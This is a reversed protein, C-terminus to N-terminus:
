YNCWGRIIPNLKSILIAQSKGKYRNIIEAVKKYHQKQAKKSPTIITKFGLLEGKRNKGCTYKGKRYQKVNFGLFNFGPEEKKHHNLTHSIRTKSPKLELGMDYLWPIIVETCRNLINIDEHLILFDDAYRIISVSREKDRRSQQNGRCDKMDFDKALNKIVNEM